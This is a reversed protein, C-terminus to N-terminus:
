DRDPEVRFWDNPSVLTATTSNGGYGSLLPTWSGTPGGRQWVDPKLNGAPKLDWNLFYWASLRYENGQVVSVTQRVGGNKTGGNSAAGLFYSGEHATIGGFWSGPGQVGDTVGFQTWGPLDGTEFGPNTVTVPGPAGIPAIVFHKWRTGGSEIVIDTQTHTLYGEKVASADYTGAPVDPIAYWGFRNSADSLGGPDLTVVAGEIPNGDPDEVLGQMVGPEPEDAYEYITMYLDTDPHAGGTEYAQGYPYADGPEFVLFHMGPSTCRIYYTQGAVLPVEAPNYTVGFHDIGGGQFQAQVTKVPGVVAGTPGGQRIEWTVNPYTNGTAGFGEVAALSSGTARFTQGFDGSWWGDGSKLPLNGLGMIKCYPIVTGDSDSGICAYLDATIPTGGVYATGQSYGDGSDLRRYFSFNQGGGSAFKIAYTQGPVTPVEGSRWAVPSDGTAGASRSRTPGVQPGTPGGSHISVVIDFAGGDKGALKYSARTVSAATAVFTQAFTSTWSTWPDSGWEGSNGGFAVSYDNAVVADQYTLQGNVVQIDSVVRGRWAFKPQSSLLAYRGAPLTFAYSGDGIPVQGPPSGARYRQGTGSGDPCVNIYYEYLENWGYSPGTIKHYRAHGELTGDALASASLLVALTCAGAVLLLRHLGM